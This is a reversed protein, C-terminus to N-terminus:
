VLCLVRRLEPNQATVCAMHWKALGPYLYVWKISPFLSAQFLSSNARLRQTASSSEFMRHDSSLSLKRAEARSKTRHLNTGTAEKLQTQSTFSSQPLHQRLLIKDPCTSNELHSALQSILDGLNRKASTSLNNFWAM